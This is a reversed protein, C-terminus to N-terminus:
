LLAPNPSSASALNRSFAPAPSRENKKQSEQIHLKQALILEHRNASFRHSLVSVTCHQRLQGQPGTEAYAHSARGSLVLTRSRHSTREAKPGPVMLFGVFGAFTGSASLISANCACCPASDFRRKANPRSLERCTKVKKTTSTHYKYISTAAM